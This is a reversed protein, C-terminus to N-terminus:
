KSGEDHKKKWGDIPVALTTRYRAWMADVFKSQSTRQVHDHYPGIFKPNGMAENITRSTPPTM